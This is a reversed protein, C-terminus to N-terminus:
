YFYSEYYGKYRVTHRYREWWEERVQRIVDNEANQLAADFDNNSDLLGYEEVDPKYDKVDAISVSFESTAM